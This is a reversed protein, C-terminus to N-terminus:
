VFLVSLLLLGNICVVIASTEWARRREKRSVREMSGGVNRRGNRAFMIVIECDVDVPARVSGIICVPSCNGMEFCMCFSPSDDECLGLGGRVDICFFAGGLGRVGEM